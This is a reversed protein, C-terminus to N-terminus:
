DRKGTVIADAGGRALTLQVAEGESLQAADRVISGDAAAVIAYGRELVLQPSLASLHASLRSLDAARREQARAGAAALRQILRQQRASLADVDVAASAMRRLLARILFARQDFHHAACRALRIGLHAVHNHQNRLREGPHTVRRGLYDVRQMDRELHRMLGRQSRRYLARLRRSLEFRDPTVLEAAATPTPARADAVFDAITFDTEHGVGCVVPIACEALARAVIEENFAWLDEISGGGRCLILVECDARASAVQLAAVIRQAAGDGQVPSPYIVVPVAPLRRRLTTLVDRLAAAATSTVIGIRRPFAPLQKKRAPAFLGDGELKAKLKEFREFLAGL